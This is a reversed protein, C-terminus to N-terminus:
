CVEQSYSPSARRPLSGHTTQYLAAHGSKPELLSCPVESAPLLASKQARCGQPLPGLGGATDMESWGWDWAANWSHVRDGLCPEIEVASNQVHPDEQKLRWLPHPLTRCQDRSGSSRWAHGLNSGSSHCWALSVPSSTRYGPAPSWSPCTSQPSTPAKVQKWTLPESVNSPAMGSFPVLQPPGGLSIGAM